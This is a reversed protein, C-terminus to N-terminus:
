LLIRREQFGRSFVHNSNTTACYPKRISHDKLHFVPKTKNQYMELVILDFDRFNNSPEYTENFFVDKSVAM